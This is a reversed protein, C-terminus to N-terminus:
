HNVEELKLLKGNFLKNNINKLLETKFASDVEFFSYKDRIDIKGVDIRSSIINKNIISFIDLKSLDDRKGLNIFFQVYHNNFYRKNRLKRKGKGGRQFVLKKSNNNKNKLIQSKNFHHDNLKVNYIISPNKDYYNFIKNLYLFIFKKFLDEKTMESLNSFQSLIIDYAFSLNNSLNDNRIQNIINNVQVEIIKNNTPIIIPSMKISCEQEIRKLKKSEDIRILSISKGHKGARGTRGSRHVFIDPDDPLSFHIVHTLSNVDLGRAAVDTAVLIKLNKYRFKKMVVDRQNQSLDGHLSDASFGQFILYDSVQQTEVRTKCFIITYHEPMFDLIRHLVELKQNYRTICYVHSINKKITNINGVVIKHPNSMYGNAIKEVSKSMTASFLLTQKKIPTKALIIELEDKFGMSLMEDAEDLVLWQIQSLNLVKRRIMDNLRGPTGIVIQPNKKLFRIQETISSGGYVALSRIKPINSSYRLIDRTIQLCLERTPCLIIAEVYISEENIQHLIPLGFAATKGTGTQALAILDQKEKLLFPITLKQIETPIQYGIETISSLLELKLGSETFLNM